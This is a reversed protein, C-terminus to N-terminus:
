TRGSHWRLVAARSASSGARRDPRSQKVLYAHADALGILTELTTGDQGLMASGVSGGVIEALGRDLADVRADLETTSFCPVVAVFEDGGLRGVAIADSLTARTLKAVDQLLRDGAAHGLTDNVGKFDDLDFTIVGIASAGDIAAAVAQEAIEMFGRRNLLGTLEDTRAIRLRKARGYEVAARNLTGLLHAGCLIVVLFPAAWLSATPGCVVVVIWFATIIALNERARRRGAIFADFMVKCVFAAMIPATIGLGQALAAAGVGGAVLVGSIYFGVRPPEDVSRLRRYLFGATLNAIIWPIGLVLLVKGFFGDGGTLFNNIVIPTGAAAIIGFGALFWRGDFMGVTGFTRKGGAARLQAYSLEPRRVRVRARLEIGSPRIAAAAQVRRAPDAKAAYLARDAAQMLADETVQGDHAVAVGISVGTREALAQEITEGIGMAADLTVNPLLVAFEDGGLRAFAAGEPLTPPVRAGVWALLEDGAAHGHLDNVQKFGNLDLMLLALPESETSAEQAAFAFEDAFGRRNLAATLLDGRSALLAHRGALNHGIRPLLGVAWSVVILALVTAVQLADATPQLMQIAVSLVLLGVVAPGGLRPPFAFGIYCAVLMVAQYVVSDLGRDIVAAFAFVVALFLIVAAYVWTVGLLRAAWDRTAAWAFLGMAVGVILAGSIIVTPAWSYATQGAPRLAQSIALAFGGVSILILPYVALERRRLISPEAMGEVLRDAHATRDAVEVIM